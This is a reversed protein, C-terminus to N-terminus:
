ISDNRLKNVCSRGSEQHCNKQFPVYLSVGGFGCLGVAPLPIWQCTLRVVRVRTPLVTRDNRSSGVTQLPWHSAKASAFRAMEDMSICNLTPRNLRKSALPSRERSVRITRPPAM